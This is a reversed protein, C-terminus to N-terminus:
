FGAMAKERNDAITFVTNLKTIKFLEQIQSTLNCFHVAISREKCKSNFTVFQGIMTSTMLEIRNMDILIKKVETSQALNQLEGGISSVMQQDLIRTAEFDLILVDDSMTQILGSM